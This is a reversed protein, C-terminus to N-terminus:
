LVDCRRVAIIKIPYIKSARKTIKAQIKGFVIDQILQGGSVEKAAQQMEEDIIRSIAKKQKVDIRKSVTTIVKVKLKKDGFPVTSFQMFKDGRRRVMSREYDRTIEHRVFDTSCVDGKVELIRFFLKHRQKKFDRVDGSLDSLTTEIIRGVLLKPDSAITQGIYSGGFADPAKVDYWQKLKWPDKVTKATAM